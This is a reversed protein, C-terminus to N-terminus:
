ESGFRMATAKIEAATSPSAHTRSRITPRHTAPCFAPSPQAQCGLMCAYMHGPWPMQHRVVTLWEEPFYPHTPPSGLSLRSIPNELHASIATGATHM